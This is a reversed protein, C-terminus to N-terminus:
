LDTTTMSFEQPNPMSKKLVVHALTPAKLAETIEVVTKSNCRMGLRVSVIIQPPIPVFYEVRENDRRRSLGDLLFLQRLESEYSWEQNKHFIVADYQAKEEASGEAVAEDWRPRQTVYSVYRLGKAESFLPWSRDFEVVIGRHNDAYHAWMVVSGPNSTLCLLGGYRSQLRTFGAQVSPLREVIRTALATRLEKRQSKWFRRYDRQTGVPFGRNKDHYYSERVTRKDRTAEKAIRQPATCVVHPSFEFVDNLQDPPTIKLELNRLINVGRHDCYKFVNRM